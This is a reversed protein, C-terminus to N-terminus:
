SDLRKQLRTKKHSHTIFSLSQFDLGGRFTNASPRTAGKQERFRQCGRHFYPFVQHTKKHSQSHRPRPPCAAARASPKRGRHTRRAKQHSPPSKTVPTARYRRADQRAKGPEERDPVRTSSTPSVKYIYISYSESRKKKRKGGKAGEAKPKKEKKAKEKKAKPPMGGFGMTLILGGAAAGRRKLCSQSERDVCTRARNDSRCGAFREPSVLGRAQRQAYGCM